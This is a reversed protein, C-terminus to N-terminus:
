RKTECCPRLGALSTLVHVEDVGDLMEGMSVDIVQEDCWRLAADEDLGKVRLGALVDPHPKYVVWADPNAERVARLLLDTWIAAYRAFMKPLVLRLRHM